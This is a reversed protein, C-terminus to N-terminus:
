ETGSRHSHENRPGCGVKYSRVKKIADEFIRDYIAQTLTGVRKYSEHFLCTLICGLALMCLFRITSECNTSFTGIEFCVWLTTLIAFVSAIRATGLAHAQDGLSDIKKVGDLSIAQGRLQYWYAWSIELAEKKNVSGNNPEGLFGKLREIMPKHDLIGEDICLHWHCWHHIESFIYGLAGALFVSGLAVGTLGDKAALYSVCQQMWGPFVVLLLIGTEVIYVFGPTVYRLFRRAEDM